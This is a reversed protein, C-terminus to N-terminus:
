IGECGALPTGPTRSHIFTCGVGPPYPGSDHLALGFCFRFAIGRVAMTVTAALETTLDSGSASYFSLVPRPMWSVALIGIANFVRRIESMDAAWTGAVEKTRAAESRHGAETPTQEM